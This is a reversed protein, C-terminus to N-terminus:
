APQQPSVDPTPPGAPPAPAANPDQPVPQGDPGIPEPPAPMVATAIRQIEAQREAEKRIEELEKADHDAMHFAMKDHVAQPASLFEPTKRYSDHRARHVAHNDWVNAEVASGGGISVNENNAQRIDYDVGSLDNEYPLGLMERMKQKDDIIGAQWYSLLLEQRAQRSQPLGETSAINVLPDNPFQASKFQKVAPAGEKTATIIIDDKVYQRALEIVQAFGRSIAADLMLRMEALRTSDSDKLAEIAKASEVRGPVDGENVAHIGVIDALAEALWVGEGNDAMPAGQILEPKVMGGQSDGILVQSPSNDPMRKMSDALTSDLWWKVNAFNERITTRQAHYKNLEMQGPRMFKLPSHMHLAGPVPIVGVQSFPLMGHKYPFKDQYVLEQGSWIVYRGQAYRRSPLEWFENVTVGAGYGSYGMEKMIESRVDDRNGATGKPLERGFLEYALDQSMFRSHIIRRMDRQRTAGADPYIEFPSCPVIDPRKSAGDYPWKIWGEGCIVAWLDVCSKVAAWDAKAPTCIDDIYLQAVETSSATNADISSPLVEPVPAHQKALAHLQCAYHMLKNVVPRPSDQSEGDRRPIRELSSGRAGWRVYQNGLFFALNLWYDRDFPDRATKSETKHRELEALLSKDATSLGM